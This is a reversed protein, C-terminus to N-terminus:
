PNKNLHVCIKDLDEPKYASAALNQKQITEYIERRFVRVSDPAKIGVKVSDGRIETIIFEIDSGVM